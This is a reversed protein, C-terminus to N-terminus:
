EFIMDEHSVNGFEDWSTFRGSLKDKHYSCRIFLQQKHMGGMKINETNPYWKCLLGEKLGNIYMVEEDKQGNEYFLRKYGHLVGGATYCVVKRNGNPYWLQQLGDTFGDKYNFQLIKQGNEMFVSYEGHLDGISNVEYTIFYGNNDIYSYRSLGNYSLLGNDFTVYANDCYVFPNEM